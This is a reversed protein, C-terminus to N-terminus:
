AASHRAFIRSLRRGSGVQRALLGDAPIAANAGATLPCAQCHQHGMGPRGRSTKPLWRTPDSWVPGPMDAWCLNRLANPSAAVGDVWFLDPQVMAFRQM